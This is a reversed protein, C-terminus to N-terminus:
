TSPCNIVVGPNSLNPCPIEQPADYVCVCDFGGVDCACDVPLQVVIRGPSPHSALAHFGYGQLKYGNLKMDGKVIPPCTTNGGTCDLHEPIGGKTEAWHWQSCMQPAEWKCSQALADSAPVIAMGAFALMAALICPSYGMGAMWIRLTVLHDTSEFAFEAARSISGLPAGRRLRARFPSLPATFLSPFPM